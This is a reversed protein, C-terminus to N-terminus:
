FKSSSHFQKVKTPISTIAIKKNCNAIVRLWFLQFTLSIRKSKASPLTFDSERHFHFAQLWKALWLAFPLGADRQTTANGAGEMSLRELQAVLILWRGDLLSFKIENLFLEVSFHNEFSVIKIPLNNITRNNTSDTRALITCKLISRLANLWQSNSQRIM